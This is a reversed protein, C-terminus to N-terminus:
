TVITDTTFNTSPSLASIPFISFPNFSTFYSFGSSRGLNQSFGSSVSQSGTYISPPVSAFNWRCGARHALVSAPKAKTRTQVLM